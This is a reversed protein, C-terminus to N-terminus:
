NERKRKKYNKNKFVPEWVWKFGEYIQGNNLANIMDKKDFGTQRIIEFISQYDSIFVGDQTYKKVAASKIDTIDVVPINSGLKRWQFGGAKGFPSRTVADIRTRSLNVSAGAQTHNDFERIYEGTITYQRVRYMYISDEVAKVPLENGVTKRFQFGNWTHGSRIISSIYAQEANMERAASSLSVHNKVFKGDLDYQTVGMTKILGIRVAHESNEKYTVFELNSIHNNQRNGDIHNVINKGEPQKMFSFAVLRHALITLKNIYFIMYKNGSTVPKRIAGFMNRLRGHSSIQYKTDTGPEFGLYVPDAPKWIEGEIVEFDDYEWKFGYAGKQGGRAANVINKQPTKSTMTDTNEVALKISQFLELREGTKIDCKWVSRLRSIDYEPKKQNSRQQKSSAWRLNELTNNSPNRDIHDVEKYNNPNPIFAFAVLRHVYQKANYKRYPTVLSVTKYEGMSQQSLIVKSRIGKVRGMNSVIYKEFGPIPKWIENNM